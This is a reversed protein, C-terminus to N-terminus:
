ELTEPVPEHLAVASTGIWATALALFSLSATLLHALSLHEEFSASASDWSFIYLAGILVNALFLGTAAWIWNRLIRGHQHETAEKWILWSAALLAIQVAAVIWRHILQSQLELDEIKSFLEGQCLPWSDSGGVGCGFNAGPTTAVFVGAFLATFTGLGLWAVRRHWSAALIPDFDLWDPMEKSDRSLCLWLWILSLEFALGSALHLAVSWHENDMEVTLWGLAGQWIILGVSIISAFRADRSSDEDRRILFWNLFVLPGLLAGALLRHSWETFIQFTTYRHEAGRSDIEDPHTDWWAEQEEASVDFSWDGFCTPWDPCSEGADYIRVVGGLTIVLFTLVVLGATLNRASIRDLM